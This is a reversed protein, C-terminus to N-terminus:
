RERSSPGGTGGTTELGKCGSDGGRFFYLSEETIIFILFSIKVLPGYAM